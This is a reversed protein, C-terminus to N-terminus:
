GRDGPYGIFDKDEEEGLLMITTHLILDVGEEIVEKTVEPYLCAWYRMFACASCLIELPNWLV